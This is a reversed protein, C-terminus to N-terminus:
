RIITQGRQLSGISSLGRFASSALLYCPLLLVGGRKFSVQKSAVEQQPSPLPTSPEQQCLNNQQCFDEWDDYGIYQALITLTSLRPKPAEQLYGWLRKLTMPSVSQHLKEFISGSLM